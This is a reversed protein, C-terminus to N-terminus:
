ALRVATQSGAFRIRVSKNGQIFIEFGNTLHQKFLAMMSGQTFALTAWISLPNSPRHQGSAEISSSGGRLVRLPLPPTKLPHLALNGPELCSLHPRETTLGRLLPLRQLAWSLLTPSIGHARTMHRPALRSPQGGENSLVRKSTSELYRASNSALVARRHRARQGPSNLRNRGSVRSQEATDASGRSSCLKPQM